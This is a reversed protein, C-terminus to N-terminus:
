YSWTVGAGIWMQASDIGVEDLKDRFDGDVLESLSAFGHAAIHDSIAYTLRGTIRLDAFGSSAYQQMMAGYTYYAQNDDMWGLHLDVDAGLKEDIAFERAVGLRLYVGDIADYDYHLAIRPQLAWYEDSLQTSAEVMFESTAASKALMGGKPLNYTIFGMTLLYDDIAQEYLLSWDLQSFGFRDADPVWADGNSNSLDLNGWTRAVLTGQQEAPLAVSVSPQAVLRENLVVGRRNNQTAVDVGFTASPRAGDPVVCAALLLGLAALSKKPQM